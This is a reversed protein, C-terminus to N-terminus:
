ELTAEEEAPTAREFGSVLALVEVDTLVNRDHLTQVLAALVGVTASLSSRFAEVVGSDSDGDCTADVAEAVTFLHPKKSYSWSKKLRM